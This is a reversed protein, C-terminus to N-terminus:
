FKFSLIAIGFVKLANTIRYLLFYLRLEIFKPAVAQGQLGATRHGNNESPRLTITESYKQGTKNAMKAAVKKFLTKAEEGMGGYTSFVLPSLVRWKWYGPMTLVNRRNKKFAICGVIRPLTKLNRNSTAQAHYVRVDLFASELLNWISRARANVATNSGPPLTVGVTPLLLPETVM